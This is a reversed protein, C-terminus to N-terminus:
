RVGGWLIFGFFMGVYYFLGSNPRGIITIDALFNINILELFFSFINVVISIPLILGHWIGTFFGYESGGHAYHQACSPLFLIILASCILFVTNKNLSSIKNM